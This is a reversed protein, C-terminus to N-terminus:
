KLNAIISSNKITIYNNLCVNSNYRLLIKNRIFSFYDINNKTGLSGNSYVKNGISIIKDLLQNNFKEETLINTTTATLYM